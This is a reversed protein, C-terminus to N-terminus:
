RAEEFNKGTVRSCAEVPNYRELHPIPKSSFIRLDCDELHLISRILDRTIKLRKNRVMSTIGSGPSFVLDKYFEKMINPYVKEDLTVLSVWGMAVFYNEIHFSPADFTFSALDVNKGVLIPCKDIRQEPPPAEEDSSPSPLRERRPRKAAVKMQPM